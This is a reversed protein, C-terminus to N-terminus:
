SPSPSQQSAPWGKKITENILKQIMAETYGYEQELIRRMNNMAGYYLCINYGDKQDIAKRYNRYNEQLAREFTGQDAM